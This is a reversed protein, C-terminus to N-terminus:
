QFVFNYLYMEEQERSAQPIDMDVSWLLVAEETEPCGLYVATLPVKEGTDAHMVRNEPDILFSRVTGTEEDKKILWPRYHRVHIEGQATRHIDAGYSLAEYPLKYELYYMGNEFRCLQTVEYEDATMVVSCNQTLGFWLAFAIMAVGLGLLIGRQWTKIKWKRQIKKLPKAADVEMKPMVETEADIATLLRACHSCVKVHEEVLTRSVGSCVGDHYLPLLDQIMECPLKM